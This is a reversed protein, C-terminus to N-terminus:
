LAHFGFEGITKLTVEFLITSAGHDNNISTYRRQFSVDFIFCEDEYAGGAAVSAMKNQRLDRRGSAHLRWPGTVTTVGLVGENRPKTALASGGPADYYLYPNTLAYTYGASFRLSDAGWSALGEAFRVNMTRNDFRQRTTIDFWKAPTYSLHSVIDSATKNLGSEALFATDSRARYGQGVLGDIIAGGPMTWNGHLGVNIRMGGELRDIGPFRNLAFLTADTFDQDLSDENPILTRAYSSGRPAAIAQVIPEIMHTGWTGADRMLPWNLKIAVSPMGQSSGVTGHSGFNPQQDYQHAFYAAGDLRAQVQWVDGLKGIRNVEWGLGLSGRQDNTGTHRFVNFAGAELSSRGGLWGPESLFSYQYRPLVYPLKESRVSTSLSQYARADLRSWAGQGFGELYAQSTLVTQRGAIRFDRMYNLSTTRQLDFGWRWTDDIAFKGRAFLHGGVGSNTDAISANISLTGNNFRRRDDAEISPGNRTAILPTITVDSQGDLVWYYPEALFAGLHKSLGFSPTLLGSARKQSPDPHTLYPIWLVPVGFFDIIADKYEIMKNETDQVAEVARIQWLPARSPDDKCLDCTSYVVRTLANIRGDTRRAGNAALRGNETLLARMGTLVGDKMGGSLEAQEAFVTQGDQELLVVQGTATAVDTTRNYVVKDALLMRPEQWFEVHGTLTVIGTERDYDATDAQYYVPQDQQVPATPQSPMRTPTAAEGSCALLLLAVGGALRISTRM